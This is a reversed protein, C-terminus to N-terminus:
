RNRLIAALEDEELEGALLRERLDVLETDSLDSLRADIQDRKRKERSQYALDYLEAEAQARDTMQNSSSRLGRGWDWIFGNTVVAAALVMFLAGLSDAGLVPALFLGILAMAGIVMVWVVITAIMKAIAIKVDM